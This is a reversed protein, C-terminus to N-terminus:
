KIGEHGGYFKLLLDLEFLANKLDQIDAGIANKVETIQNKEKIELDDIKKFIERRLTEENLILYKQLTTQYNKTADVNLQSIQKKCRSVDTFALSAGVGASILGMSGFPIAIMPLIMPSPTGGVIGSIILSISAAIGFVSLTKNLKEYKKVRNMQEQMTKLNRVTKEMKQFAESLETTRKGLNVDSFVEMTKKSFSPIIPSLPNTNDLKLSLPLYSEVSAISVGM